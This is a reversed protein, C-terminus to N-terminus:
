IKYKKNIGISPAKKSAVELSSVSNLIANSLLIMSTEGDVSYTVKLVISFM